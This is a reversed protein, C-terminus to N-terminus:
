IRRLVECSSAIPHEGIRVELGSSPPLCHVHKLSRCHHLSQRAVKSARDIHCEIHRAICETFMASLAFYLKALQVDDM